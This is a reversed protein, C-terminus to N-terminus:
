QDIGDLIRVVALRHSAPVAAPTDSFDGFLVEMDSSSLGFGVASLADLQARPNAHSVGQPLVQALAVGGVLTSQGGALLLDRAATAATEIQEDTWDPLVLGNIIRAGVHRDVFRRAWWDAVVSNMYGLLALIHVTDTGEPHRVGHAYGTSFLYGSDPLATATLTRSNDNTSPFRYTITPHSLSLRAHGDTIEIGRQLPVLDFPDVAKDYTDDTIKYADVHRTKLVLWDGPAGPAARTYAHHKGSGSFDWRSSDSTGTIWGEGAGLRPQKRMLDFIHNDDPSNFWPLVSTDSLSEVEDSTLEITAEWRRDFAERSTLGPLVTVGPQGHVRSLLVISRRADMDFLWYGTNRCEAATVFHDALIQERISTWGSLMLVAQPLVVGLSGGERVLNVFREGFMKAFDFHGSGLLSFGNKALAQLRERAAQERREEEADEPKNTRLYAIREARGATSLSNLGPDRTVWFQQPEHRVKDWPPNGLICDFGPLARRFVEPYRVPMHAAMVSAALERAQPLRPHGLVATELDDCTPATFIGPADKIQIKAPDTSKLDRTIREATILDCLAALPALAAQLAQHHHGAAAVDGVSADSLAGLAGLHEAARDLFQELAADLSTMQAKVKKKLERAEAEAIAESIEHLTGVGALSNGWVLGHDLFSLPLGPVFTHIWVALRALEVAIENIDAGYICRRAIQRRLLSGDDIGSERPDLDLREAATARLTHLELAVEPLPNEILFASFRAEIRDVAAVLFHASGMSLDAVRFDFLAEAASKTAGAKLMKRVRGLHQDVAPELATDLLHEVAFPKTFYSGTAKRSGGRSHFYVNGKPVVVVSGAEAPVYTDNEDTTLDTEAIGLGSELLGEYITGFERVSLSRFDVPGLAGDRNEDILLGALAPGVTDNTLDLDYTAAGSPNKDPNRTFLGGNYAPVGWGGLDGSDIVRWVQTLDDWLTSSNPDFTQEPDALLDQALTKLANRRYRESTEYPLLGRDEAYAVFLLRFLIIMTQHYAEDLATKQEEVPLSTVGRREAVAVALTPVVKEYIRERLRDSLGTAYRSSDALLRELAGGQELAEASFLLDLYGAQDETLLSLDLEVFTQTQGKRGVGLDPDVPYLRAVPGGLVIVWPVNERRAVAIGHRVADTNHFRVLPNEFSEGEALLVVAARRQTTGTAQRLVTGDPVVEIAYGLGKLLAEGRQKLLPQARTCHEGWTGAQAQQELVHTALLGENRLGSAVGQAISGLRRRVEAHLGAPSTIKLADAILQAAVRIDVDYFPEADEGLGLLCVGYGAGSPYTIALLVPAIGGQSRTRWMAQVDAKTPRGPAEALVVVLETEDSGRLIEHAAVAGVTRRWPLCDDWDQRLDPKVNM